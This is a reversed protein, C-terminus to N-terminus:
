GVLGFYRIARRLPILHTRFLMRSLHDVRVWYPSSLIDSGDLIEERRLEGVCDEIASLYFWRRIGDRNEPLDCLYKPADLRMGTEEKVERKLTDVPGGDEPHGINTGGPFKVQPPLSSYRWDVSRSTQVLLYLLENEWKYIVAGAFWKRM